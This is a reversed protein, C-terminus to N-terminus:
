GIGYKPDAVRKENFINLLHDTDESLIEFYPDEVDETSSTDEAVEPFAEPTDTAAPIEVDEEVTPCEASTDNLYERRHQMALQAEQQEDFEFRNPTM